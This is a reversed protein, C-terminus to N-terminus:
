SILAGKYEEDLLDIQQYQDELTAMYPYHTTQTSTSHTVISEEKKFSEARQNLKILFAVDVAAEKNKQQILDSNEILEAVSKESSKLDAGKLDYSLSHLTEISKKHLSIIETVMDHIERSTYTINM